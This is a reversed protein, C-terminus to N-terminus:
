ICWGEETFVQLYNLIDLIVLTYIFFRAGVMFSTITSIARLNPAKTSLWISPQKKTTMVFRWNYSVFKWFVVILPVKQIEPPPHTCNKGQHRGRNHLWRSSEVLAWHHCRRDTSSTALRKSTEESLVEAFELLNRCICWNFSLSYFIRLVYLNQIRCKSKFISM